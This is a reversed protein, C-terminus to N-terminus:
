CVAQFNDVPRQKDTIIAEGIQRCRRASYGIERSIEEWTQGIIYRAGAIKRETGPLHSIDEEAIAREIDYDLALSILRDTLEDKKAVLNAIKDTPYNSGSGTHFAREGYELMSNITDIRERLNIMEEKMNQVIRLDM